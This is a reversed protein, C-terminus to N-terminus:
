RSTEPTGTRSYPLTLGATVADQDRRIGITFSHLDPQDDSEVTSLWPELKEGQRRTMMEAFSTVHDALRDLHPCRSRIKALRNKDEIDLDGPRRLLWGTIQRVKPVTPPPPPPTLMARFPHLYRRVTQESGTYGQATIEKTLQAAETVGATWRQHLYPKFPDLLNTRATAKGLLEEVTGARAFRRVTTRDLSLTRCIAALSEGSRLLNQVAAFRERTRIM